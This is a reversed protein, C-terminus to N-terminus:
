SLFPNEIDIRELDGLVWPSAKDLADPHASDNRFIVFFPRNVATAIWNAERAPLPLPSLDVDISGDDNRILRENLSDIGVAPAKRIFAGTDCDYATVSWFGNTPVHAPIHLRYVHKGNLGRGQSDEFSKLYLNGRERCDDGVVAYALQARQDILVRDDRQCAEDAELVEADLMSKWRRRSWWPSGAVQFGQLVHAHAEIVAAELLRKMPADACFVASKGIGLTQLQGMYSLDSRKIPEELVMRALLAYFESNRPITADFWRGSMDILRPPVGDGSSCQVSIQALSAICAAVDEARSSRPVIRMACYCNYTQSRIAICGKPAAAERPPLLAYCAGDGHDAGKRGIAALPANWADFVSGLLEIHAARPVRVVVPGEMLNVFFGAQLATSNAGGVQHRWDAPKSWYVVDNYRAAADRFYAQRLAAFSVTPMGWIAAEVARRYRTRAALKTSSLGRDTKM